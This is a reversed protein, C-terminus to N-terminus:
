AFPKADGDAQADNVGEHLVLDSQNLQEQLQSYYNTTGLHSVGGLWFTPSKGNASKFSRWAIELTHVGNTSQHVRLYSLPEHVATDPTTDAAYGNFYTTLFLLCAVIRKM